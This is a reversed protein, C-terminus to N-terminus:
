ATAPPTDSPSGAAGLGHLNHEKIFAWDGGSATSALPRNVADAMRYGVVPDENMARSSAHHEIEASFFDLSPYDNLHPGWTLCANASMPVPRGATKAALERLEAMFAAAGRLQYVRWQPWLQHGQVKRKPDAALWERLVKAYDFSATDVNLAEAVKPRDKLYTRFEAVCRECFCAGMWLAGATGLHDDIHV